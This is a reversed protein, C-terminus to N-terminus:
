AFAVTEVAAENSAMWGEHAANNETFVDGLDAKADELYKVWREPLTYGIKKTVPLSLTNICPLISYDAICLSDGGVYKGSLFAKEMTGLIETLKGAADKEPAPAIQMAYYAIVGWAKYFDTTRKDLCMDISLRKEEAYTEPAFKRALYRLAASSEYLCTGDAMKASPVQHFPNIALFDASMQEGEMINCMQFKYKDKAHASCFLMMGIVNASGPHGCVLVGEAPVEEPKWSGKPEDAPEDKDFEVATVDKENGAIWGEHVAVVEKFIDGLETKVDALYTAWREPLTYGIKKVVPQALTNILPFISYDAITLTDGAAYKGPFFAKQLTELVKNLKKAADKEPPPAIQMSYYGIPSWVKYFDTQRKDMFIDILLQKDEPYTHPAFKQALFRLCACSEFLCTGDSMKASPVQHFPNIALFDASMQEGEMINCMQFKYKDKMHASCFAMLGIVNGSGPHGCVLIGGDPVAEMKWGAAPEAAAPEAAAPEAAAPEAAAPEAPKVAALAATLKAFDAESLDGVAKTLEESSAKDVGEAVGGPVVAGMKFRTAVFALPV